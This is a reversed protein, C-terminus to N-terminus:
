KTLLSLLPISFDAYGGTVYYAKLDVVEGSDFASLCLNDKLQHELSIPLKKFYANLCHHYTVRTKPGQTVSGIPSFIARELENTKLFCVVRKTLMETLYTERMSIPLRHWTQYNSSPSSFQRQLSALDPYSRKHFKLPLRPDYIDKHYLNVSGNRIFDQIYRPVAYGSDLVEKLQQKWFDHKLFCEGAIFDDPWQPRIAPGPLSLMRNM